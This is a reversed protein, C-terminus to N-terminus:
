SLNLQIDLKDVDAKLSALNSKTALNSTDVGTGKKFVVKKGNNSSDLEVKVNRSSFEYSKPFHQSM